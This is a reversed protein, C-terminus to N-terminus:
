HGGQTRPAGRPVVIMPVPLTHLMKAATSGLFLRQPQALRSSGVLAVEGKDWEIGSVADQISDGAAVVVTSTLDKPLDARAEALVQEAHSFGAVRIAGTDFSAPLDITALSILRLPVGADAALAVSDTRVLDAGARTGIAATVRTLPRDIDLKRTGRPVIAVPVDSSHLLESATSGIRHKGRGGSAPGVVIARAHLSDAAEVLGAAASEGDWVHTTVTVAGDVLDVAESLWKQAQEHLYREYGESPPTIVSRRETPLVIVVHLDAGTARALRVGFAIADHGSSTATYGVVVPTTM